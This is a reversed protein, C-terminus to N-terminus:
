LLNGAMKIKIQTEAWKITRGFVLTAADRNHENSRGVYGTLQQFQTANTKTPMVLMHVGKTGVKALDKDARSRDSPSVELVPISQMKFLNIILTASAKSKGVDQAQKMARLFMSQAQGLGTAMPTFGPRKEITQVFCARVAPWMGFVNSNLNPNECVVIAKGLIGSKNLWDIQHFLDDTNLTLKGSEPHYIALGLNEFSPDVGILYEKM